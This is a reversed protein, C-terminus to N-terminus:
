CGRGGELQAAADDTLRLAAARGRRFDCVNAATVMFLLDHSKPYFLFFLFFEGNGSSFTVRTWRRGEELDAGTM